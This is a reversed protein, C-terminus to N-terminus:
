YTELSLSDTIIWAEDAKHIKGTFKVEFIKLMSDNGLRDYWRKVNEFDTLFIGRQRSPLTPFERARVLELVIERTFELYGFLPSKLFFLNEPQRSEEAKFYIKRVYEAIQYRETEFHINKIKEFDKIGKL